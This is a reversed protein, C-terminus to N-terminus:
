INTVTPHQLWGNNKYQLMYMEIHQVTQKIFNTAGFNLRYINVITKDKQHITGKGIHLIKRQRIKFQFASQLYM